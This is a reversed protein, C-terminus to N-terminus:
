KLFSKGFDLAPLSYFSAISQGVDAFSELRGLSRSELEPGFMIVPIYERTHDSGPISPDCGHDAVIFVRDEPKLMNELMPLQADFQELAHAYGLVDRRHGYKSDFDVFNTFILSGDAANAMADLTKNFLDSNNEGQISQTIGMNAFIDAIKGIGIVEHGAIKMSDLLTPAHPPTTYDKRNATRVYAGQSGVFPRAIVRGVHYKDVIKRAIQCIEYLRNLGFTEEHAAIQFVSDASTYVIPFGTAQHQQGWEEIIQTGSAHCNGLVGKLGTADLFEEILVQPFCNPTQPFFGWDFLVPLGMLEWHGSPTDKGFSREQAYGYWSKPSFDFAQGVGSSAQLAHLLGLRTLNPIKTNPVAKLINGLTNCGEDGYKAADAAAGIGLSDMMLICVRAKKM